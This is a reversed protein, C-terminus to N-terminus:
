KSAPPAQAPPNSVEVNVKQPQQPSTLRRLAGSYYLAGIVIAVIAVLAFAWFFNSAASERQEPVLVEKEVVVKDM